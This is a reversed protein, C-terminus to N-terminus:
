ESRYACRTVYLARHPRSGVEQFKRLYEEESLAEDCMEYMSLGNDLHVFRCRANIMEDMRKDVAYGVGQPCTLFFNDPKVRDENLILYDLALLTNLLMRTERVTEAMGPAINNSENPGKRMTKLELQTPALPLFSFADPNKGDRWVSLVVILGFRGHHAVYSAMCKFSVILGVRGHGHHTVYWSRTQSERLIPWRPGSM